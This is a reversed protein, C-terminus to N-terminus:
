EVTVPRRKEWPCFLFYILGPLALGYSALGYGLIFGYLGRELYVGFFWSLAIRLVFADFFAFAFGLWANGIGHILANTGRMILQAPFQWVIASVFVPALTLVGSDDTFCGFLRGPVSVLLVTYALYMGASLLWTYAVTRRIRNFKRAGYNQGIIGSAGTMMGQSVKNVTDDLRLGAGFVAAAHYGLSNVLSHVFLMSVNISCFRTAFPIGLKLLARAISRDIRMSGLRFDFGFEDRHHYLFWWSTLCQVFYGIATALAAGFVGLGLGAIFWVDLVVNLLASITIFILPLKSDGLGRMASALMNYGCVFIVGCGLVLMYCMADNFSEQPTNLLRLFPKALTLVLVTMVAGLLLVISFLTGMTRNLRSRDGSGILQSIYVQGGTTLGFCLMTMFVFAQSAISVAALGSGGVYHGVVIMDVISYVVQLANSIMFPISFRLLNGMLPGRTFDNIIASGDSM